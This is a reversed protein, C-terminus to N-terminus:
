VGISVEADGVVDVDVGVGDFVLVGDGLEERIDVGVEGVGVGDGFVLRLWAASKISFSNLGAFPSHWSVKTSCLSIM